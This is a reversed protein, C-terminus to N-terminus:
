KTPQGDMTWFIVNKVLAQAYGPAYGLIGWTGTGLLGSTVDLPARVVHGKGARLLLPQGAAEDRLADQAFPRLRPEALDDMGPRGASILPHGAAVAEARRGPFAKGLLDQEVAQAFGGDPTGCPDVLLVGGAGVYERLARVEEDRVAWRATGTLHAVPTSAVSARTLGSLPMPKLDVGTGTQRQFWRALRPWAGPEPDWNGAYSLRAVGVRGNPAAPGPDTVHPSDLRNRLDRKGAAYLFLNTGFHFLHRKTKEDRTQWAGSIDTPSHVMLLRAGNTVARIPPRPDVKFAMDYLHHDAPLDRMKHRDAFLDVALREAFENFAASGADAHTFLIGGDRVFARLKDREEPTLSPPLHSALYLVPSDLWDHHARGIPVVQWNLDRELQRGAYRALNAVDRPRNAWAGDADSDAEAGAGAKPDAGGKADAGADADAAADPDADIGDGFRLKNMLVPHRGRALFLLCFATDGPQGSWGGNKEQRKVVEAALRRYWDHAGFYKMGTALGAREVGFLTYATWGGGNVQLVNDGTELWALGRRLAQNFPQRGVRPPAAGSAVAAPLPETSRLWDQTVLLSAVGAVTMSLEGDGSANYPCTGDPKQTAVWHQRVAQWYPRPVELGAEAGAWVGLLGYQSNSNDWPGRDPVGDANDDAGPPSRGITNYTYAGRRHARRAPLGRRRAAGQDQPRNLSALATARIARAYTQLHGVDLKSRKMADIM